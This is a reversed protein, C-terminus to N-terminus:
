AYTGLEAAEALSQKAIERNSENAKTRLNALASQRRETPTTDRNIALGEYESSVPAGLTTALKAFATLTEATFKKGNLKAVQTYLNYDQLNAVTETIESETFDEDKAYELGLRSVEANIEAYTFEPM